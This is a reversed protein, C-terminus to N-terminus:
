IYKHIGRGIKMQQQMCEFKSFNNKPISNETTKIIQESFYNIEQRLKYTLSQNQLYIKTRGRIDM